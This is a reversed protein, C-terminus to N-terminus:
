LGREKLRQVLGVYFECVDFGKVDKRTLDIMDGHSIGRRGAPQLMTFEGWPMSSVAVLGDNDGDIPKVISYGLNLPFDASKADAMRSGISQYLVGPCDPLEANLRACKEDTLESVGSFFDAGEDGLKTFLKDYSKSVFGVLNQPLNDLARGAFRCGHHPTNITTLSAVYRDMGLRSIAYRADLGGKSHAIINVKACQETEIIHLIRAKLEEASTEVSSSSQQQGYYLTAGNQELEGPIRGWYNFIEWDRFFIGHVMLIPYNTQCVRLGARQQNRLFRARLMTYEGHTTRYVAIFVPIDVLPVWWLFILCLRLALTLQGSSVFLRIAANILMIGLLLLPLVIGGVWVAWHFAVPSALWVYLWMLFQAATCIGTTLLLECGRALGAAKGPLNEKKLPVINRWIFFAALLLIGIIKLLAGVPLLNWLFVSNCLALILGCNIIRKLLVM